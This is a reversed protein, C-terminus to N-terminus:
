HTPLTATRQMQHANFVPTEGLKINGIVIRADAAAAQKTAFGKRGAVHPDISQHILVKDGIMIDYGWGEGSTFCQYSLQNMPGNNYHWYLKIATIAAAIVVAAVLIRYSKNTTMTMRNM